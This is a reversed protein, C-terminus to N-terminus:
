GRGVCAKTNRWNAKNGPARYTEMFILQDSGQRRNGATFDIPCVSSTPRKNYTELVDVFRNRNCDKGCDLLQHYLAKQATWNLFLLDGGVGGLDVDPRYKKYQAEFLRIDDAYSAFSGTYDGKSYANFMAVGDLAPNFADEDLTQATLNFPFLMMNPKYNQARTQKVVQTAALANEWIWVVEAGANKMKLIDDTYNSKNQPV